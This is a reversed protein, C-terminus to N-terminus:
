FDSESGYLSLVDLLYPYLSEEHFKDQDILIVFHDDGARGYLSDEGACKRILDAQKKLIENGKERGFLENILKFETINSYVVYQSQDNKQLNEAKQVLHEWNYIGTLEDHGMRYRTRKDKVLLFQQFVVLVIIAILLIVIKM